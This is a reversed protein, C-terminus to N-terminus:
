TNGHKKKMDKAHDELYANDMARIHYFLYERQEGQLEKHDAWVNTATWPIPGIGMGISRCSSLENFAEYFLELGPYLQPRNLIEEPIPRNMREAQEIIKAAM